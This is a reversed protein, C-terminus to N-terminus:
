VVLVQQLFIAEKRLEEFCDNEATQPSSKSCHFTQKLLTNWTVVVHGRNALTRLAPKIRMSKCKTYKSMCPPFIEADTSLRLMEKRLDSVGQLTLSSVAFFREHLRVQSRLQKELQATRVSRWKDGGASANHNFSKHSM